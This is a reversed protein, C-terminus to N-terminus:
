QGKNLESILYLVKIQLYVPFVTALGKVGTGSIGQYGLTAVALWQKHKYDMGFDLGVLPAQNAIKEFTAHGYNAHAYGGHLAVRAALFHTLKFKKIAAIEFNFTPIAKALLNTGLNSHVLTVGLLCNYKRLSQPHFEAGAGNLWYFGTYKRMVPGIHWTSTSDGAKSSLSVILGCFLFFLFKNNSLKMFKM